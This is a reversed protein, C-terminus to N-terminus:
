FSGIKALIPQSALAGSIPSSLTTLAFLLTVDSKPVLLVDVFYDTSWFLVGSIIFFLVSIIFISLVLQPNKILITMVQFINM